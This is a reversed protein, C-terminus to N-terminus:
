GRQANGRSYGQLQNLFPGGVNHLTLFGLNREFRPYLASCRRTACASLIFGAEPNAFIALVSIGFMESRRNANIVCQSENRGLYRKQIV